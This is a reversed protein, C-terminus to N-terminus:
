LKSKLSEICGPVKTDVPDWWPWVGPANEVMNGKFDPRRKELFSEVGERKDRGAFLEWLVKSDLLHTAEASGPGRWMLDRMLSTSVLSTNEAVERAVELARELVKEEPVVESFLERLLEHGAPYVGCTTAL